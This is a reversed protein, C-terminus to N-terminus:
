GKSYKEKLEQLKVLRLKLEEHKDSLKSAESAYGDVLGRLDSLRDEELTTLESRIKSALEDYKKRCERLEKGNSLIDQASSKIETDVENIADEIEQLKKLKRRKILQFWKPKTKTKM